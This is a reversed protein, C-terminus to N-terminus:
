HTKDDGITAKIDKDEPTRAVFDHLAHAPITLAFPEVVDGPCDTDVQKDLNTTSLHVADRSGSVLVNSLIPITNKRKVLKTGLALARIMDDRNFTLHHSM